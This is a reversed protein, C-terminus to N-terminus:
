ISRRSRARSKTQKERSVQNVALGVSSAPVDVIVDVGDQDYWKRAISAGIDPKNQHDASVVEVQLGNAAPKFDEVALQAAVVSGKGGVDAYVGSQDNLVGVKVTVQAFGWNTAVISLLASLLIRRFM